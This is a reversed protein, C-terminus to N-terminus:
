NIIFTVVITAMLWSSSSRKRLLGEGVRGIYKELIRTLNVAKLYFLSHLLLFCGVFLKAAFQRCSLNYKFLKEDHKSNFNWNQKMLVSRETLIVKLLKVFTLLDM